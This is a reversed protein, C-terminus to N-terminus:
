RKEYVYGKEDVEHECCLEIDMNLWEHFTKHNARNQCKNVMCRGWKNPQEQGLGALYAAWENALRAALARDGPSKTSKLASVVRSVETGALAPKFLEVPKDPM